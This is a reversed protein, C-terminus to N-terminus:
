ACPTLKMNKQILLTQSCQQKGEQLLISTPQDRQEMLIKIVLLQRDIIVAPKGDVLIDANSMHSPIILTVEYKPANDSSKKKLVTPQYQSPELEKLLTKPQKTILRSEDRQQKFTRDKKPEPLPAANQTDSVNHDSKEIEKQEPISSEQHPPINQIMLYAIVWVAVTLGLAMGIIIGKTNNMIAGIGGGMTAAILTMTIDPLWREQLDRKVGM